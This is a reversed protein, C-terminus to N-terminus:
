FLSCGSEKFEKVYRDWQEKNIGVKSYDFVVDKM